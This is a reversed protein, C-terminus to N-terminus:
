PDPPLGASINAQDKQLRAMWYNIAALKLKKDTAPNSSASTMLKQTISSDYTTKISPWGAPEPISTGPM